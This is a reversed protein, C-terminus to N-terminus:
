TKLRSDHHDFKICFGQRYVHVYICKCMLRQIKDLRTDYGLLNHRALPVRHHGGILHHQSLLGGELFEVPPVHDDVLGM